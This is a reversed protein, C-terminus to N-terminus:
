PSSAENEITKARTKPLSPPHTINDALKFNRLSRLLHVRSTFNNAVAGGFSSQTSSDIHMPPCEPCMHSSESSAPPCTHCFIIDVGVFRLRCDRKVSAAFYIKPRQQRQKLVISTLVRATLPALALNEGLVGEFCVAKLNTPWNSCSKEFM